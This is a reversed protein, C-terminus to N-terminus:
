RCTTVTRAFTWSLSDECPMKTFLRRQFRQDVQAKEAYKRVDEIVKSEAQEFFQDDTINTLDFLSSQEPNGAMRDIVAQTFLLPQGKRDIAHTTERVWHKKAAAVADRIEEEIKLLSGAEGALKMKDFVVEVLQGLLKPELQGVFEKLMQEEGPMPEACVINSRTIKPRDKKLGMEQYARQCRLWLALAAIQTARLDIDIGHLNHALILRPM